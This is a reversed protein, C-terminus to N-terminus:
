KLTEYKENECHFHKTSACKREFLWKLSVKMEIGLNQTINSLLVTEGTSTTYSERKGGLDVQFCVM